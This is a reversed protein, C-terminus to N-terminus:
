VFDEHYEKTTPSVFDLLKANKLKNRVHVVAVIENHFERRTGDFIYIKNKQLSISNTHSNTNMQFLHDKMQNALTLGEDAASTRKLEPLILRRIQIMLTVREIM